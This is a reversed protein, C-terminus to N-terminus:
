AMQDRFLNVSYLLCQVAPEFDGSGVTITVTQVTGQKNHNGRQHGLVRGRILPKRDKRRRKRKGKKEHKKRRNTRAV